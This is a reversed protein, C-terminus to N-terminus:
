RSWLEKSEDGFVFMLDNGNVVYRAYPQFPGGESTEVINGRVRWRGSTGGGGGVVGSVSGDGGAAGGSSLSYTGDPRVVLHQDSVFSAGGSVM